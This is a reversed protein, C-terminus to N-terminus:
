ALGGLSGDSALNMRQVSPTNGDEDMSAEEQEEEDDATQNDYDDLNIPQQQYEAQSVLDKYEEYVEDLDEKSPSANSIMDNFNPRDISQQGQNQGGIKRKSQPKSLPQDTTMCRVAAADGANQRSFFKPDQLRQQSSQSCVQPLVTKATNAQGPHGSSMSTTATYEFQRQSNVASVQKGSSSAM